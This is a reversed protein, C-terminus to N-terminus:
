RGELGQNPPFPPFMNYIGLLLNEPTPLPSTLSNGLASGCSYKLRVTVSGARVWQPQLIETQVGQTFVTKEKRSFSSLFFYM